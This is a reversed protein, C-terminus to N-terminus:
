LIVDIINQLMVEDFAPLENKWYVNRIFPDDTSQHYMKSNIRYMRDLSVAGGVCLIHHDCVNIISYDPITMFRKQDIPKVNFYAPNDHNDRIMAIWNNSKGLRTKNRNYVNEYYQPNEFGFGCDGAVIILTDTMDYQVCFKNVLMNFDGHIDGCIVVGKAEPFSLEQIM